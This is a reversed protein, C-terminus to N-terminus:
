AFAARGVMAPPRRRVLWEAVLLNPVWSLWAVLTYAEPFELGMAVLLPLELRLTVGAFILAASRLMWRRHAAIDGARVKWVGVATTALWLVALLGFGTAAVAGAQTGLAMALGGLGSLLVLVAYSRGIWRHVAPRRARLRPLFQLPMLMLALPALGVHAFFALPRLDAHYAVFGMGAEVGLPIFRWSVVAISVSLIWFLSLRVLSLLPM